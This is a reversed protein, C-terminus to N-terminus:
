ILTTGYELSVLHSYIYSRIRAVSGLLIDHPKLLYSFPFQHTVVLQKNDLLVNSTIKRLFLYQKEEAARLFKNTANCCDLYFNSAKKLLDVSNSELKVKSQKLQKVEQEKDSCYDEYVEDPSKEGIPRIKGAIRMEFLNKLESDIQGLRKNMTDLLVQQQDKKQVFEKDIEELLFEALEEDIDIPHVAKNAFEQILDGINISPQPCQSWGGKSKTCHYLTYVGVRDTRKYRKIKTEATVKLDKCSACFFHLRKFLFKDRSKQTPQAHGKEHSRNRAKQVELYGFLPLHKAPYKKGRWTFEQLYFDSFLVKRVEEPSIKGNQHGKLGVKHLRDSIEQYSYGQNYLKPIQRVYVAEEEDVEIIRDPKEETGINVNKYGLPAKGPWWGRAAKEDLARMSKRRTIKSFFGNIAGMIEGFMEGEETDDIMPQTVAYVKIGFKKLIARIPIYADNGRALRDTETVVVGKINKDEQCRILLDQLGARDLTSGSIGEDRYDSNEALKWNNSKIFRDNVTKQDNCSQTNKQDDTSVREYTLLYYDDNM